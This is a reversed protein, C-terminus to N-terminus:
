GYPVKILGEMGGVVEAFGSAYVRAVLVSADSVAADPIEITRSQGSASLPVSAAIPFPKGDPEVRIRRRIADAAGASGKAHVTMPVAGLATARVPIRVARVDEPGLEVTIEGGGPGALELGDGADVTLTVTQPEKLYNYVAVPVEVVDGRILAVPADVDVFFDQFVRIGGVTAGLEGRRSVAQASVRWTTISDALPITLRARGDDDTIVAPKWLLTEPFDERVRVGGPGDLHESKDGPGADGGGSDSGEGGTEWEAGGGFVRDNAMNYTGALTGGGRLLSGLLCCQLMVGLAGLGAPLSFAREGRRARLAALGVLLWPVLLVAIAVVIGAIGLVVREFKHFSRRRDRRADRAEDLKNPYSRRLNVNEASSIEGALSALAARAATQVWADADEPTAGWRSGVLAGPREARVLDAPTIPPATKIQWKPERLAEELAFFVRELGPKSDTRAFVAEDVAAITVSAARPAGDRDRVTVDLTAEDGPRYTDRDLDLEIELADPPAVVVPRVRRVVTGDALVRWARAGLTGFVDDPLDFDFRARGNADADVRTTFLTTGDRVLDLYVSGPGGAVVDASVTGGARYVAADLRLVLAESWRVLERDWFRAQGSAGGADRATVDLSLTLLDSAADIPYRIEAVGLPSTEFAVEAPAHTGTVTGTTEAPTGDPYSTLVFFGNDRGRAATGDAILEIVLPEKAVPFSKGASERHDAGDVVDVVLRALARGDELPIGHLVEPVPLECSSRGAADLRGTATAVPRFGDVSWAELRAEYRGGAVAKGFFYRAAIEARVTEGVLAWGRTTGVEVGFKPLVYREVEVTRESSVGDVTARLVWRGENIEDALELDASAVGFDSATEARRFVKNGKGDEVEFVVERGARPALDTARLALARIHITQGPQYTPKDSTVLVRVPRAVRVSSRVIEEGSADASRVVLTYRGDPVSEPISLDAVITGDTDTQGEALTEVVEGDRDELDVRVEAYAVGELTFADRVLVRLQAALGPGLRDPSAFVLDTPSHSGARRLSWERIGFYSVVTVALVAAVIAIRRAWRKVGGRRAPVVAPAPAGGPAGRAAAAAATRAAFGEDPVLGELVGRLVRDTRALRAKTQRCRECGPLHGEVAKQDEWSLEGDIGRSLLEETRECITASM